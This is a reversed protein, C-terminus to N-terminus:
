KSMYDMLDRPTATKVEAKPAEDQVIVDGQQPTDVLVEQKTPAADMAVAAAYGRVATLVKEDDAEDMVFALTDIHKAAFRAVDIVRMPASDFTEKIFPRLMDALTQAETFEAVFAAYEDQAVKATKGPPVNDHEAVVDAKIRKDAGDETDKEVTESGEIAEAIADGPKPDKVEEVKIEVEKAKPTKDKCDKAPAEEEKEEEKAEVQVAAVPTPISPDTVGTGCDKAAKPAKDGCDKAPVEEEKACACECPDKGCKDCVHAEVKPAKDKCDKAPAEEEKPSPVDQGAPADTPEPTAAPAPASATSAAPANSEAPAEPKKPEEKPLEPPTPPVDADDKAAKPAKDSVDKEEDKKECKGAKCRELAEKRVDPPFDAFDLCDQALQEDGGKIASALAKARDLKSTEEKKEEKEMQTEKEQTSVLSEPLSDFTVIASDYVCVSSGCRGHKVLALHNGRLNTQKFMYPVGDYFGDEKEYVCTYGLSLEKVKGEKLIDKMRDTYICFDAILYGPEDMSPRVNYICGDNPNKDASNLKKDKEDKRNQKEDGIMLHGVRIPLGNFSDIADPNFLADPGRLVPYLREPELGFQMEFEPIPDGDEDVEIRGTKKNRKYVIEGLDDRKFIPRGTRLDKKPQDIQEGTYPFVGVRSIPNARQRRYGFKDIFSHAM